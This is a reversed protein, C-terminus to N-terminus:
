LKKLAIITHIKADYPYGEADMETELQSAYTVSFKAGILKDSKLDFSKLLTDDIKQFTMTYEEFEEDIGMFNYGYDDHGDYVGEFTEASNASIMSTFSFLCVILFSAIIATKTRM